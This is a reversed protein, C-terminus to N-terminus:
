YDPREPRTKAHQQIAVGCAKLADEESLVDLEFLEAILSVKQKLTPKVPIPSPLKMVPHDGKGIGGIGRRNLPLDYQNKNNGMM